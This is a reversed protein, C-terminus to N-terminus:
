DTNMKKIPEPIKNYVASCLMWTIVPLGICLILFGWEFVWIVFRGFWHSTHVNVGQTEKGYDDVDPYYESYYGKINKYGIEDRILDYHAFVVFSIVVILTMSIIRIWKATKKSTKTGYESFRYFLSLVPIVIWVIFFVTPHTRFLEGIFWPLVLIAILGLIGLLFKKLNSM